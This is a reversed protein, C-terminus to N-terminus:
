DFTFLVKKSFLTQNQLHQAHQNHLEKSTSGHNELIVPQLEEDDANAVLKVASSHPIQIRRHSLLSDWAWKKSRKGAPVPGIICINSPVPVCFEDLEMLFVAGDDPNGRLFHRNRVGLQPADEVAKGILALLLREEWLGAPELGSGEVLVIINNKLGIGSSSSQAFGDHGM